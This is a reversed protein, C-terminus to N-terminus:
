ILKGNTRSSECVSDTSGAPQVLCCDTALSVIGNPYYDFKIAVLERDRDM